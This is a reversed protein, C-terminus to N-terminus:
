DLCKAGQQGEVVLAGGGGGWEGTIGLKQFYDAKVRPIM